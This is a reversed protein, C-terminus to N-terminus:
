ETFLFQVDFMRDIHQRGWWKSGGYAKAWTKGQKQTYRFMGATTSIEPLYKQNV